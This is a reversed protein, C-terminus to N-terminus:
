KLRIGYEKAIEQNDTALYHGNGLRDVARRAESLSFPICDRIGTRYTEKVTDDISNVVFIRFNELENRKNM